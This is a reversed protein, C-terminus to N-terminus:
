TDKLPNCPLFPFSWLMALSIGKLICDALSQEPSSTQVVSCELTIHRVKQHYLSGSLRKGFFSSCQILAFNQFKVNFKMKMAILVLGLNNLNM